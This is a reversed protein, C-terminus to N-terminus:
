KGKKKERSQSSDKLYSDLIAQLRKRVEATEPSTLPKKELWDHPVDFLEGTSYLKYPGQRVFYHFGNGGRSYSQFVYGRAHSEDGMMLPLLNQGDLNSPMPAGAVACLTPFLDTFDIQTHVLTGPQIHGPWNAIFGVHNGDDIMETKGGRIQGRGPFPSVIKPHTGNDSTFIILTNERLGTEELLKVLKGVQGDMYEVMEKFHQLDSVKRDMKEWDPSTPTPEFPSHVLLSSFYAMFPVNRKEKIFNCLFDFTVDPGYKGENGDMPKGNQFLKPSKYREGNEKTEGDGKKDEYDM